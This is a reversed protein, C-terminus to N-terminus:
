GPTQWRFYLAEIFPNDALCGLAIVHPTSLQQAAGVGAVVALEVDYYDAVVQVIRQAVGDLSGNPPTVLTAAAGGAHVFEM